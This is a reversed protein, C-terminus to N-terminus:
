QSLDGTSLSTSAIVTPQYSSDITNYLRDSTAKLKSVVIIKTYYLVVHSGEKEGRDWACENL